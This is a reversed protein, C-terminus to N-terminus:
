NLALCHQALHNLLGCKDCRISQNNNNSRRNNNNDNNNNINNSNNNNNNNNWNRNRGRGRGPGRGQGRSNGRRAGRGIANVANGSNCVNVHDDFRQNLSAIAAMVDANSPASNTSVGVSNLVDVSPQEDLLALKASRAADLLTRHSVTVAFPDNIFVYVAQRLNSPIGQMFKRKVAKSQDANAANPNASKYLQVLDLMFEDLSEDIKLIRTDFCVMKQERTAATDFVSELRTKVQALTQAGDLENSLQEAVALAQGSLCLMILKGKVNDENKNALECCNNFKELWTKLDGEGTFKQLTNFISMFSAM